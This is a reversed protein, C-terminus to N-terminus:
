ASVRRSRLWATCRRFKLALWSPDERLLVEVRRARAATLAARTDNLRSQLTVRSATLVLVRDVLGALVQGVKATDLPPALILVIERVGSLAAVAAACQETLQRLPTDVASSGPGIRWYTGANQVCASVPAAGAVIEAFGPRGGDHGAQDPFRADVVLLDAGLETSFYHILSAASEGWGTQASAPLLLLLEPSPSTTRAAALRGEPLLPSKNTSAPM